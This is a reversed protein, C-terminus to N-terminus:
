IIAQKDLRFIGGSFLELKNKEKVEKVRVHHLEERYIMVEMFAMVRDFNGDPNYSILEELLPESFIKTLNKIGAHQEENLWDKILGEGWEKIPRNMHNGKTRQVKMEQVVDKLIDPQDALLHEQHKHSFHSFLGKKENEYMIKANYYLSLMRVKEYFEEATNPRGTYEAVPM